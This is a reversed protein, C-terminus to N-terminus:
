KIQFEVYQDWNRRLLDIVKIIYDGHNLLENTEISISLDGSGDQCHKQSHLLRNDRLLYIALCVNRTSPDNTDLELHGCLQIKSTPSLELSSQVDQGNNSNCLRLGTLTTSDIRNGNTIIIMRIMLIGGVVSLVVAIITMVRVFKTYLLM